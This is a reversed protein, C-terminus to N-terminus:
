QICRVVRSPCVLPFCSQVSCFGTGQILGTKVGTRVDLVKIVERKIRLKAKNDNKMTIRWKTFPASTFAPLWHRCLRHTDIAAEDRLAPPTVTPTVHAIADYPFYARLRIPHCTPDSGRKAGPRRRIQSIAAVGSTM